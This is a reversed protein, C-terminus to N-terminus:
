EEYKKCYLKRASERDLHEVEGTAENIHYYYIPKLNPKVRHRRASQSSAFNANARTFFSPIPERKKMPQGDDLLEDRYVKLEEWYQMVTPADNKIQKIGHKIYCKHTGPSLSGYSSNGEVPTILLQGPLLKPIKRFREMSTFRFDDETLVM